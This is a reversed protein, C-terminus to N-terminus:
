LAVSLMTCALTQKADTALSRSRILDATRRKLVYLVPMTVLSVTAIVLGVISREPPESLSLSRGAEYAVYTSLAILSAGVLRIAMSERHENNSGSFRWVM